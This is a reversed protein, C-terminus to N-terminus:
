FFLLLFWGEEVWWLLGGAFLVRHGKKLKPFCNLVSLKQRIM